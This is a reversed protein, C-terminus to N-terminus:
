PFLNLWIVRALKFNWMACFFVAAIAVFVLASTSIGYILQRALFFAILGEILALAYSFAVAGKYYGPERDFRYGCAECTDKMLPTNFPFKTKHFVKAKGCNPCKLKLIGGAKQYPTRNDLSTQVRVSNALFTVIPM